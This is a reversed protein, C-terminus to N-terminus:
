GIGGIVLSHCSNGTTKGLRIKKPSNFIFCLSKNDVNVAIIIRAAVVVASAPMKPRRETTQFPQLGQKGTAQIGHSGIIHPGQSGIRQSGHAGIQPGKIPRGTNRGNPPNKAFRPALIVATWQPGMIHPGIQSGHTGTAHLGHSGTAHLGHSGTQPGKMPRGTNRGNPPNKEFRPALIVATCQPGIQSGHM